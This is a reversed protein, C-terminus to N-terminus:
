KRGVGFYHSICDRMYKIRAFIDQTPNQLQSLSTTLREGNKDIYTLVIQKSDKTAVLKTHDFFNIQFTEDSLHFIISDKAKHWRKLFVDGGTNKCSSDTELGASANCRTLYAKFHNHLTIRKKIRADLDNTNSSEIKMPVTDMTDLYYTYTEDVSMWLKTGDMFSVGVSGDKLVYGLGYKQSYDVWKSVWVLDRDLKVYEVTSKLSAVNHPAINEKSHKTFNSLMDFINRIGEQATENCGFVFNKGPLPM